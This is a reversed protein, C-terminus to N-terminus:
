RVRPYFANEVLEIEHSNGRLIVSVIDFRANLDVNYKTIYANAAEVLFRQKTLTVASTPSEYSFPSRTKVEAFVIWGDKQAVIDIEMHKFYWNTAVIKYGRARLFDAALQEGLKGNENKENIKRNEM